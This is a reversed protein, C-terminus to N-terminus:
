EWGVRLNGVGLGVSPLGVGLGGSPPRMGLGGSPLGSGALRFTAEGWGVRVCQKGYQLDVVGSSAPFTVLKFNHESIM